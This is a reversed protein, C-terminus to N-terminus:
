KPVHMELLLAEDRLGQSRYFHMARLNDPMVAVSIEVCKKDALRSLLETMLAKGIGQDRANETVILEEVLCANGAHYLDPRLSWSLLGVIEQKAEALLIRSIPSAVYHAIYAATLPSSEGGVSAHESILRVIETADEVRAERTAIEMKTEGESVCLEFVFPGSTQASTSIQFARLAAQVM